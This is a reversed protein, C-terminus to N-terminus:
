ERLTAFTQLCKLSAIDDDVQTGCKNQAKRLPAEIIIKLLSTHYSALLRQVPEIESGPLLERLADEDALAASYVLSYFDDGSDTSMNEFITDKFRHLDEHVACKVDAPFLHFASFAM